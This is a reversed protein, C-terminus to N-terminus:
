WVMLYVRGDKGRAAASASKGVSSSDDSGVARSMSHSAVVMSWVCCSIPSDSARQAFSAASVVRASCVGDSRQVPPADRQLPRSALGNRVQRRLRRTPRRERSEAATASQAKAVRNDRYRARHLSIGRAAATM